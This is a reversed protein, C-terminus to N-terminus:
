VVNPVTKVWLAGVMKPRHAEVGYEVIWVPYVLGVKLLNVPFNSLMRGQGFHLSNLVSM